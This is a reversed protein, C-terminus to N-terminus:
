MNMTVPVQIAGTAYSHHTSLAEFFTKVAVLSKLDGTREYRAAFGNVQPM